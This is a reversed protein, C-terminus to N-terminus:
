TSVVGYPYGRLITLTDPFTLIEGRKWRQGNGHLLFRTRLAYVSTGLAYRTTRVSVVYVATENGFRVARQETLEDYQTM